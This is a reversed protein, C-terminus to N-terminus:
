LRLNHFAESVVDSFLQIFAASYASCSAHLNCSHGAPSLVECWRNPGENKDCIVDLTPHLVIASFLLMGHAHDALASVCYAVHLFHLGSWIILSLEIAQLNNRSAGMNPSRTANFIAAQMGVQRFHDHKSCNAFNLRCNTM